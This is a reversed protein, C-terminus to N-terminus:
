NPPIKAARVYEGWEPIAAQFMANAEEPTRNFPEAGSVALFKRTEDTDVIQSFWGSIKQVIPKPVGVPVIAGWWSALDMPVGSEKMTPIDPVVQSREGMSVALVRITGQRMQALAFIPDFMGYDIKGSQMEGLADAVNRYPVEVAQLGAMQNYLAGMITGPVAGTAYSANAGKAKMARTLEAVNQYPSKADVVLMFPLKSITAAIELAKGVDVPPNKYLHMSAAVTTASFPYITYGDPKSRAVYETAINSNAGPKNEVVVTQQAALRLKEGLYRVIIDAGTGPPFGVVLHIDRSPYEQACAGGVLMTILAVASISAVIFTRTIMRDIWSGFCYERDRDEFFPLGIRWDKPVSETIERDVDHNPASWHLAPPKKM